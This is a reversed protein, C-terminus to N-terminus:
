RSWRRRWARCRGTPFAVWECGIARGLCRAAATAPCPFAQRGVGDATLDSTSKWCWRGRRGDRRRRHSNNCANSIAICVPNYNHVLQDNPDVHSEARYWGDRAGRKARRVIGRHCDTVYQPCHVVSQIPALGPRRRERQRHVDRAISVRMRELGYSIERITATNGHRIKEATARQTAWLYVPRDRKSHNSRLATLHNHFIWAAAYVEAGLKRLHERRSLGGFLREIDRPGFPLPVRAAGDKATIAARAGLICQVWTPVCDRGAKLVRRVQVVRPRERVVDLIGRLEIPRSFSNRGGGPRGATVAPGASQSDSGM